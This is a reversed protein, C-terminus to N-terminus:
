DKHIGYVLGWLSNSARLRIRALRLEKEQRQQKKYELIEYIDAVILVIMFAFFGTIAFIHSVLFFWDGNSAALQLASLVMDYELLFNDICNFVKFPKM